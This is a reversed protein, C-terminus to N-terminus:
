TGVMAKIVTRRCLEGVADIRYEASGRVDTIPSLCAAFDEEAFECVEIQKVTMGKLKREVDPLRSAVPSCSGVAIRVDSVVGDLIDVVVAVMAISIVLYKRSGLKLFSSRTTNSIAPIKISVVIEDASLETQRVGTIFKELPIIRNGSRSAVEVQADLALLPPVGDAAPSANCINGAVTGRNQIQISGVERAALKLGDFAAPLDANVIDTWTTAAGIRWGNEDASIGRCGNLNTVDLIDVHTEGELQSPFFDTGGAVIGASTDRLFMLADDIDTPRIYPLPDGRIQLVSFSKEFLDSLVNKTCFQLNHLWQIIIETISSTLM